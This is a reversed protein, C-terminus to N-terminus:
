RRERLGGAHHGCRPRRDPHSRRRLGAMTFYFGKGEGAPGGLMNEDPVFVNDFFLDFSHM